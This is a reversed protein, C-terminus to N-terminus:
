DVEFYDTDVQKLQYHQVTTVGLDHQLMLKGLQDGDVLVITTSVSRAYDLAENSFTGTTLFVGKRARKGELAGVFKQIDPRGVTGEWRKAQVYIVDLGLADQKIVGDIGGDGSRGVAKAADQHNGGYGMKVLLDVVLQEFFEPSGSKARQILDVAVQGDLEEMVEDLIETPTRTVNPQDNTPKRTGRRSADMWQNFDSFRALYGSDLTDPHQQIVRRGRGTIRFVGRRPYELLGAKKLYTRAWGVRNRMLPENRKPLKQTREEPTLEFLNSLHATAEAATHESGDPALKLLPLMLTQYDPISM